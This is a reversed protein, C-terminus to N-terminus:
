LPHLLFKCNVNSVFDDVTDIGVPSFATGEDSNAGSIIPVHVFAGDAIQESGLRAIFDGDLTPNWGSAFTTTNLINNLVFLPLERLCQLSDSCNNCGAAVTLAEYRPQYLGTGNLTGYFVPNGSEMMGARFLGDDRGNFALLQFGVSSGGASEGWITVKAPDGGFGAINQNIWQLALRQDKLGLNTVGAAVVDDGSLFGFPGLRYAISAAMIPKGIKVSNEVIFSLNYRRDVAGGM